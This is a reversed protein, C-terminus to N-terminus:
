EIRYDSEGMPHASTEQVNPDSQIVNEKPERTVVDHSMGVSGKPSIRINRSGSTRM